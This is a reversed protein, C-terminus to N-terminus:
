ASLVQWRIPSVGPKSSRCHPEISPVPAVGVGREVVARDLVGRCVADVRGARDRHRAGAAVGVAVAVLEEEDGAVGRERGVRRAAVRDDARDGAPEVLQMAAIMDCPMSGAVTPASPVPWGSTGVTM